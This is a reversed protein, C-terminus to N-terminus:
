IFAASNEWPTSPPRSQMFLCGHASCEAYGAEQGWIRHSCSAWRRGEMGEKEVMTPRTWPIQDNSFYFYSLTLPCFHHSPGSVSLIYIENCTSLVCGAFPAWCPFTMSKNVNQSFLLNIRSTILASGSAPYSCSFAALVTPPELNPASPASPLSSVVKYASGDPSSM